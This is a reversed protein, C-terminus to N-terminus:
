TYPLIAELFGRRAESHQCPHTLLVHLCGRHVWWGVRCNNGIEAPQPGVGTLTELKPRSLVLGHLQKPWNPALTLMSQGFHAPRRRPRSGGVPFWIGKSDRGGAAVLDVWKAPVMWQGAIWSCGDWGGSEESDM